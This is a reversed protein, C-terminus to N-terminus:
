EDDEVEGKAPLIFVGSDVSLKETREVGIRDLIDKASTIKDRLGLQTPDDIGSIIAKAAKPGHLTLFAKTREVVEDELGKLINTTQTAESYGAQRKAETPSSAGSFLADLFAKQKETLEREAM